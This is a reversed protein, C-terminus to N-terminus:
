YHWYYNTGDRQIDISLSFIHRNLKTVSYKLVSEWMIIFHQRNFHSKKLEINIKIGTRMLKKSQLENEIKIKM